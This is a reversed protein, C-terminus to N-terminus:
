GQSDDAARDNLLITGLDDLVLGAAGIGIGLMWHDDEVAHVRGAQVAELSRWMSSDLIQPATTEDEAGYHSHFIVDADMLEVQEESVELAFDDADQAEPRPFGVDELITGIFSAKQYLRTSGPLFRVMSVSPLEGGDSLEDGLAQTRADYEDLVEQARDEYGLAEAHILMNHRWVVGVTETFVTPAIQSLQDYLQEHRLTSSLILDPQLAAIAELDPEDITGVLETQGTQESLYNLFGSEVPARVAGVPIVGLAVASDLEGTDLVVVREPAAPIETTGEAHSVTRPFEGRADSGGSETPASTPEEPAAPQESACASTVLALALALAVPLRVNM